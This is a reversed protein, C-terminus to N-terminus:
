TGRGEADWTVGEKWAPKGTTEQSDTLAGREKDLDELLSFM